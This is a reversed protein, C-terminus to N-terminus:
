NDNKRDGSAAIAERFLRAQRKSLEAVVAAVHKEELEVLEEADEFDVAKLSATVAVRLNEDWTSFTSHNDLWQKVSCDTPM